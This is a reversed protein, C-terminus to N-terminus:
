ICSGAVIGTAYADGCAQRYNMMDSIRKQGVVREANSSIGNVTPTNIRSKAGEDVSLLDEQHRHEEEGGAAV